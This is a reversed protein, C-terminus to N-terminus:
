RRRNFDETALTEIETIIESPETKDFCNIITEILNEKRSILLHEQLLDKMQQEVDKGHRDGAHKIHIHYVNYKECAAEYAEQWTYDKEYEVGTLSKMVNASIRSLTPEDGITFLYGKQNRKNFSDIDTHNAAILWALLYSEGKNAGGRGELYIKKLASDLTLTESEFQGVQCPCHDCEHDGIGMFMIQPDKIGCSDIISNMLKPFYDKILIEPISGMSGTEDLAIIIPLSNPHEESDRSERIHTASKTLDMEPNIDRQTFIESRSSTTYSNSCANSSYTVSDWSGYGM